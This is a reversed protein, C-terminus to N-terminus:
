AAQKKGKDKAREVNTGNVMTKGKPKRKARAAKMKEAREKKSKELGEEIFTKVEQLVWGDKNREPADDKTLWYEVKKHGLDLLTAIKRYGDVRDIKYDENPQEPIEVTEDIYDGGEEIDEVEPGEVTGMLEEETVEGGNAEAAVGEGQPTPQEKHTEQSLPPPGPNTRVENIYHVNSSDLLNKNKKLNSYEALPIEEIGRKGVAQSALLGQVKGDGTEYVAIWNGAEMGIAEFTLEVKAKGNKLKLPFLKNYASDKYYKTM